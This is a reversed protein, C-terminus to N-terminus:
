EAEDQAEIEALLGQSFPVFQKNGQDTYAASAQRLETARTQEEVVFLGAIV